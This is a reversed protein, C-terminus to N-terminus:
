NKSCDALLRRMNKSLFIKEVALRHEYERAIHCRNRDFLSGTFNVRQQLFPIMDNIEEPLSSDYVNTHPVRMIEALEQTRFDIAILFVPRPLVCSLAAMTGHIRAGVAVDMQCLDDRWQELSYYLRMRHFPINAKQLTLVDGSDQAFVLSNPYQELVQLLVANLKPGGLHLAVKLSKDGGRKFLRQYQLELIAGMDSRTNLFLSPCGTAVSNPVGASALALQTFKGRVFITSTSRSVLKIFEETVNHMKFSFPSNTVAGGPHLDNPPKVDNNFVEQAGAGILLRPINFNSQESLLGVTPNWNFLNATPQYMIAEGPPSHRLCVETPGTCIIMQDIDVLQRAACEWVFNGTNRTTLNKLAEYAEDYSSLEPVQLPTYFNRYIVFRLNRAAGFSRSPSSFVPSVPMLSRGDYNHFKKFIIFVAGLSLFALLQKYLGSKVISRRRLKGGQSQMGATLLCTGSRVAEACSSPGPISPFRKVALSLAVSGLM